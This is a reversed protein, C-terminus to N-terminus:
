TLLLKVAALTALVEVSVLFARQPIRPLMFIGALCGIAIAPLLILNVKLSEVTMLGLGVSFPVKFCNLLFFYWAGTSIFEVKPLRMAVLYIVMIPGAANALMTTIGALLGLGAAFWWQSPVAAEADAYRRRWANLGLLLLIIAGIAPQLQRDSIRSMMLGGAFIGVVAWPALRAVHAWVAQRRYYAVALIDASILMPLVFGTSQRAPLITALLPIALIGIGPMGTKALGIMLASFGMVAWQLGTLEAMM